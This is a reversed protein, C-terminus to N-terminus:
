VNCELWINYKLSNLIEQTDLQRNEKAHHERTNRGQTLRKSLSEGKNAYQM